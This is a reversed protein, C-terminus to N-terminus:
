LEPLRGVPSCELHKARLEETTFVAYFQKTVALQSHGMLESLSALDGGNLIYERAFAHRFAHPNLRGNVGARKGVRRLMQIVANPNMPQDKVLSTFVFENSKYPRVDLWLGIANATRDCFLAIRAKNGKELLRARLRDFEVDRIRLNCLGGVRCGTDLLFLMIAKDRYGGPADPCSKLMTIVDEIDIAKPLSQPLKPLKIKSHFNENIKREEFLWKFLRRVVRVLSFLYHPSLEESRVNVIYGRVDDISIDTINQDGFRDVFRAFRVRYWKATEDKVGEALLAVLLQEVAESVKINRRLM